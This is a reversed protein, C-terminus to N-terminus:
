QLKWSRLHMARLEELNNFDPSAYQQIAILGNAFLLVKLAEIRNEKSGKDSVAIEHLRKAAAQHGWRKYMVISAMSGILNHLIDPNREKLFQEMLAAAIRENATWKGAKSAAIERVYHRRDSICDIFASLAPEDPLPTRADLSWLADSVTDADRSRLRAALDAASLARETEM